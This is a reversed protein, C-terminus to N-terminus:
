VKHNAGPWQAPTSAPVDALRVPFTVPLKGSPDVKGFLIDAIADGDEQGPYWAEVVAKVSALWPMTVASGTNLVVVTNPNAHAVASILKNEAPSLDISSLDAGEQELLGVFVVAM